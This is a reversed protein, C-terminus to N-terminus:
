NSYFLSIDNDWFNCIDQKYDHLHNYFFVSMIYHAIVWNKLLVLNTATVLSISLLWKDQWDNETIYLPEKRTNMAAFEQFNKKQKGNRKATQLGSFM